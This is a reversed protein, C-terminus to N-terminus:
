EGSGQRFRRSSDVLRRYAEVERATEDASWGLRLAMRAAVKPAIGLGQDRARLSLPVRRALVDTLKQALEHEVAEDIQAMLCPLEDDLREAASPDAESRRVIAESRTGYTEAFYRASGQSLGLAGLSTAVGELQADSETIGVAGPLPRHETASKRFVGLQFLVADVVEGAMTRYTTLKGGAITLFGNDEFLMHERSLASAGAGNGEPKLLPRLGAWTALVDSSTLKADPEFANATELLYDVDAEDAHVEDPSGNFFTDTTGVVTRGLGWPVGFVVRGDRPSTMMLAHRLPLRAEDVVLHVGKTPQLIPTRGALAQVDDTWPGSANVVVSARVDFSDGRLLDRVTLGCIKGRSDRLLARAHVYNAVVAGLARTDMANELTLRADDTLCDFFQIAGNLGAKKLGPELELSGKASHRRHNQYSGFLCLADYVWLGLDLTLLGRRDGVYNPVLFALPRVLHRALRMLRKRENVSEYVLGLEAYELYRLGGHVLKTSKSSTGSGFDQKEVLATKLGRAAADRAIGCGTIGGGVVVLDWREDALRKLDSSRSSVAHLTM